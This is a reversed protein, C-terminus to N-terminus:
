FLNMGFQQPSPRTTCSLFKLCLIGEQLIENQLDYFVLCIKYQFFQHKRACKDFMINFKKLGVSSLIIKPKVINNKFSTLGVYQM